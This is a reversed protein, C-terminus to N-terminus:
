GAGPPTVSRGLRRDLLVMLHGVILFTASIGLVYLGVGLWGKKGPDIFPYPYFGGTSGRLLAYGLYVIPFIAILWPDRPRLRGKEALFLWAGAALLPVADHLLGNTVTRWGSLHLARRLMLEFVAGVLTMTLALGAILRPHRLRRSGLAIASYIVAVVLNSLITFFLSLRWLAPLLGHDREIVLAVQLILGAWGCIAVAAAWSRWHASSVGQGSLSMINAM